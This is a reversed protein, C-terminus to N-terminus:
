ERSTNTVEEMCTNKMSCIAVTIFDISTISDGEKMAGAQTIVELGITLMAPTVAPFPPCGAM